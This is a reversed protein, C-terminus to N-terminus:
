RKRRLASASSAPRFARVSGDRVAEDPVRYGAKTHPQDAGPGRASKLRSQTGLADRRVRSASDAEPRKVPNGMAIMWILQHTRTSTARQLPGFHDESTEPTPFEVCDATIQRRVLPCPRGNIRSRPSSDHGVQAPCRKQVPRPKRTGSITRQGLWTGAPCVTSVGTILVSQVGVNRSMQPRLAGPGRSPTLM